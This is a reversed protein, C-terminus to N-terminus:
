MRTGGRNDIIRTERRNEHITTSKKEELVTNSKEATVNDAVRTCDRQGLCEANMGGHEIKREPAEHQRFRQTKQRRKDSQSSPIEGKSKMEYAGM